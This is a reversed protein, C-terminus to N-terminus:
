QTTPFPPIARGLGAVVVEQMWKWGQVWGQVWEWGKVWEQM